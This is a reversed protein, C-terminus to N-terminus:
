LANKIYKIDKNRFICLAIKVVHIMRVHGSISFTGNAVQREFDPTIQVSKYIKAYFLTFLALLQGTSAPDGTGFLFLLKGKKPRIHRILYILQTKLFRYVHKTKEDTLLSYYKKVSKFFATLRYFFRQVTKKLRKFLSPKQKKNKKKRQGIEQEAFSSTNLEEEPLVDTKEKECTEEEIGSELKSPYVKEKKPSVQKKKRRGLPIGLLRIRCRTKEEKALQIGAHLFHFLWGATVKLHYENKEEDFWFQGSIRYRVPVFLFLVIVLLLVGIIALLIWGLIKLITLITGLM